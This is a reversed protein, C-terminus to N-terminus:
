RRNRNGIEKKGDRLRKTEKKCDPKNESMEPTNELKGPKCDSMVQM